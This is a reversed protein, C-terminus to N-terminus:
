EASITIKQLLQHVGDMNTLEYTGVSGDGKTGNGVVYMNGKDSTTKRFTNPKNRSLMQAICKCNKLHKNNDDIDVFATVTTTM